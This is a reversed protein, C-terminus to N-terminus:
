KKRKCLVKSIIAGLIRTLEDAETILIQRQSELAPNEGTNVLRLWYRSESAERKAIRAKMIFDKRGLSQNAEIYNAGVSGSSRIMQKTYEKNAISCPLSATFKEIDKSFRIAREELDYIRKPATM